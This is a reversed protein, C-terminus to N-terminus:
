FQFYLFASPEGMRLICYAFITACVVGAFRTFFKPGSSTDELVSQAFPRPILCLVFAAVILMMFHTVNGSRDQWIGNPFINSVGSAQRLSDAVAPPVSVGNWGLMGRYVDLASALDPARFLVWAFCVALFTIAWSVVTHWPASATQAKVFNRWAHNVVLFLGHAAGWLVFTWSAGHWLGGLLMTILLNLWRRARGRANGGIPIYLYDRLFRSLTIHWRRWFDIISTARYPGNFNFPLRIGFLLSLGIAMDSYGSFDFYIQFTYALTGSWALFFAPSQAGDGADFLADAYGGLPDAILLKKALGAVFIVIGPAVREYDLWYTEPQAFQPMMQSHHLVPGAILHPFYTVFLAYHIPNRERVIGRYSDVLYAIQTFTFFSIGIPLVIDFLNEEAQGGALLRATNVFFNAYKFYALCGLNAAVAFWIAIRRRQPSLRGSPAVLNGFSYSFAISGVLLPLAALSWYAYFSLSALTLWAAAALHQYRGIVYYGLLTIPLFVFLFQYSNFLM